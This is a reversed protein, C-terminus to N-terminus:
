GAVSNQNARKAMRERCDALIIELNEDFDQKCGWSRVHYTQGKDTIPITGKGGAYLEVKAAPLCFTSSAFAPIKTSESMAKQWETATIRREFQAV